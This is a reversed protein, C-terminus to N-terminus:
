AIALFLYTGGSTNLQSTAANVIFGSSLPDIYDNSTIQATTSNLLLAPDNGSVIGRLSDFLYWNGQYDTRKLLIFRAGNTFGCDVNIPSGTGNYSGVKSIGPLTAFLHAYYNLGGNILSNPPATGGSTFTITTATPISQTSNYAQSNDNLRLYDLSGDIKTTFVIWDYGGANAKVMMLEPIVGLNHPINILSNAGTYTAIDFFGPARKFMWNHQDASVGTDIGLGDNHAYDLKNVTGSGLTQLGDSATTKFYKKGSLRSTVRMDETGTVGRFFSWDVPFGSNFTPPNPSTGGRTDMAFVETAVEPPKHPRRIAMYIYTSGSYSINASNGQDRWGFGNNTIFARLGGGAPASETNAVSPSLFPQDNSDDAAGRMNDFIMWNNNGDSARKILVWQPEFGVDVTVRGNTTSGVYSGCKIISEDGGTGFQADDHAFVYAVYTSGNGNVANHSGLTFVSSTAATNNWYQTASGNSNATADNLMLRGTGLTISRHGVIWDESASTRKIMIMGPVSGLNHAVTRGATGNGTYTVIDMFGPVAKFNWAVYPEGNGNVIGINNSATFGTSTFSQIDAASSIQAGTSNSYLPHFGSRVNDVLSHNFASSRGKCWVLSKETNDIGTTIARNSAGNGTYLTTSFVDDVYVKDGSAGAAGMMMARTLNSM